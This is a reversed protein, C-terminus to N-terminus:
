EAAIAEFEILLDVEDGVLGGLAYTMGYESRVVTGRASVGLTRKQHGFPYMADKNLTVDLTIPRTTGLVTLDGTVTGEGDGTVTGGTATFVIEPHNAVDLFDGARVHEDRRDENTFVSGADVIVSVEGLTQAEPDYTFSGSVERFLGLVKAYGIHDVLFAITTHEPDITWDIPEAKAATSVLAVSLCLAAVSSTLRRLM